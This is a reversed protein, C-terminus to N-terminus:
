FLSPGRDLCPLQPSCTRSCLRGGRLFEVRAVSSAASAGTRQWVGHSHAEPRRHELPFCSPCEACASSPAHLLTEMAPPLTGLITQAPSRDGAAPARRTKAIQMGSREKKLPQGVGSISCRRGAECASLQYPLLGYRYAQRHAHGPAPRNRDAREPKSMDPRDRDGRETTGM